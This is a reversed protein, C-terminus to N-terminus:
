WPGASSQESDSLIMLLKMSLRRVALSSSPFSVVLAPPTRLYEGYRDKCPVIMSPGSRIGLPPAGQGDWITVTKGLSRIYRLRAACVCRLERNLDLRVSDDIIKWGDTRRLFVRRAELWRCAQVINFAQRQKPDAENPSGDGILRRLVVSNPVFKSMWSLFEDDHNDKIILASTQERRWYSPRTTKRVGRAPSERGGSM